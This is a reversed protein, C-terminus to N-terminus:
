DNTTSVDTSRREILMARTRVAKTEGETDRVGECDRM